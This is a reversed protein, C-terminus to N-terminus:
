QPMPFSFAGPMFNFDETELMEINMQFGNDTKIFIKDRTIKKYGDKQFVFRYVGPKLNEFSYDGSENTTIVQEKRAAMYATICVDKMPKKTEGHLVCGMMDSKRTSEEGTGNNANAFLSAGIAFSSLLLKMKM